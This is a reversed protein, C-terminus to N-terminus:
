TQQHVGILSMRRRMGGADGADGVAEAATLRVWQPRATRRRKARFRLRREIFINM